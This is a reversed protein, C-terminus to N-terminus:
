EWLFPTSRRLGMKKKKRQTKGNTSFRFVRISVYRRVYDFKVTTVPLPRDVHLTRKIVGTLSLVRKSFWKNKSYPRSSHHYLNLKAGGEFNDNKRTFQLTSQAEPRLPRELFWSWWWAQTGEQSGSSTNGLM